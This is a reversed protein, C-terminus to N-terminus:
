FYNKFFLFFIIKIYKLIFFVKFFLRVVVVVVVTDGFIVIRLYHYAVTKGMKRKNFRTVESINKKLFALLSFIVSIYSLKDDLTCFIIGSVETSEVM